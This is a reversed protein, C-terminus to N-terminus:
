KNKLRFVNRGSISKSRGSGFTTSTRQFALELNSETLDNIQIEMKGDLNIFKASEDTFVWTGTSSWLPSGGFSIYTGKNFRITFNAYLDSHDVGDVTVVAKNWAAAMLLSESKEQASPVPDKCSLLAAMVLVITIRIKVTANKM